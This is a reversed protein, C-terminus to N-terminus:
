ADGEEQKQSQYALVSEVIFAAIDEADVGAIGDIVAITEWRGSVPNFGDIEAQKGFLSSAMPLTALFASSIPVKQKKIKQEKSRRTM